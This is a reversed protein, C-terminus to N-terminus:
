RDLQGAYCGSVEHKRWHIYLISTIIMDPQELSALFTSPGMSVRYAIFPLPQIGQFKERLRHFQIDHSGWLSSFVVSSAESYLDSLQPCVKM